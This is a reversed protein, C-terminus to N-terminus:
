SSKHFIQLLAKPLPEAQMVIDSFHGGKGAMMRILHLLQYPLYLSLRVVEHTCLSYLPCNGYSHNIEQWVVLVNSPGGRETILSV